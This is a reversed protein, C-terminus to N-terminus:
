IEIECQENIGYLIVTLKEIEVKYGSFEGSDSTLEVALKINGVWVIMNDALISLKLKGRGIQIGAIGKEQRTTSALVEHYM